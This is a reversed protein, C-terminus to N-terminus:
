YFDIDIVADDFGSNIAPGGFEVGDIIPMSPSGPFDVADNTFGGYLYITDSSALKRDIITSYPGTQTYEQITEDWPFTREEFIEQRDANAPNETSFLFRNYSVQPVIDSRVAVSGPQAEEVHAIVHVTRSFSGFGSGDGDMPWNGMRIEDGVSVGGDQNVDFIGAILTDRQLSFGGIRDNDFYAVVLLEPEHQPVSGAESLTISSGDPCTLVSQGPETGDVLTCSEGDAGAPGQPGICDAATAIGDGDTDELRDFTGNGNVDWCGLGNEGAPGAIGPLGQEGPLGQPGQEGQPGPDGQPGEPGQAGEAGDAGTPGQPGAPGAEGQPGPDGQPGANGADRLVTVVFGVSKSRNFAIGRYTGDPFAAPLRVVILDSEVRRIRLERGGLFVRLHQGQPLHEGAVFLLDADGDLVPIVGHVKPVSGAALVATSAVILLLIALPRLARMATQDHRTLGPSNEIM